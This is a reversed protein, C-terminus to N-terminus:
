EHHAALDALTFPKAQARREVLSRLEERKRGLTNSYRIFLEHDIAAEQVLRGQMAEVAITLTGIERIIAATQLDLKDEGGFQAALSLVLEAFRRGAETNGDINPHLHL